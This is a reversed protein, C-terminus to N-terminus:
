RVKINEKISNFKSDGIGDVNMIDEIKNFTNTERYQLINESIAEGIGTLKMLEEKSATNINIKMIEKKLNINDISEIYIKDEENLMISRNLDKTYADERLGGAIELLEFLRSGTKIEYVGPNKVAGDIDVWITKSSTEEADVLEEDVLKNNLVKYNNSSYRYFLIGLIIVLFFILIKLQKKEILSMIVEKKYKCIYLKTPIIPKCLFISALL